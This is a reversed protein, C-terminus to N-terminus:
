ATLVHKSKVKLSCFAKKTTELPFQNFPTFINTVDKRKQHRAHTAFIKQHQPADQATKPPAKFPRPPTKLPRPVGQFRRPPMKPADQAIKPAAQSDQRNEFSRFGDQLRRLLTKSPSPTTKSADPPRRLPTKSRGQPTKETKSVDKFRIALFSSKQYIYWAFVSNQPRASFVWFWRSLRKSVDQLGRPLKKDTKFTDQIFFLRILTSFERHLTFVTKKCIKLMLKPTKNSAFTTSKSSVDMLFRM